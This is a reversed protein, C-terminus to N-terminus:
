GGEARVAFTTGRVGLITHPTRIKMADPSGRAIDGSTVTLTGKKLRSLFSGKFQRSDFQFDEVALQSNPGASFVSNDRFTIGIAGNAGTEVSDGQHVADGVHARARDGGRVLFAEGSVTKVRGIAAEDQAHGAVPLLTAALLLAAAWGGARRILPLKM